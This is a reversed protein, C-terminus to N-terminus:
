APLAETARIATGSPEALGQFWPYRHAPACVDGVILLAPSRVGAAAATIVLQGLTGDVVRQRSRTGQEILAFPTDASRGGALLRLQIEGLQALAMYFVLTEGGRALATWDLRDISGQCHATVLRVAQALDRHTLPIGAYAACGQAATIGPVVEFPIGAQQLVALEEGGRAFILPDGGKLRVVHRGAQAQALLIQHIELQSVSHGGGTKGVEIREADRRALDLVEASVLRDHVIVDARQLHRLATLTLLGPDGPGAGVLVVRGRTAPAEALSRALWSEAAALQGCRLLDVLPGDLAAEYWDRRAAVDERAARIRGRWRALLLALGGLVPELLSEIRARLRRALVPAVGGTSIGVTIPGRSVIAPVIANGLDPADVVNVWLGLDRAAQAVAANVAREDTAAIVLRQGQLHAAQFAAVRVEHGASQLAKAQVPDLHPDVIRVRAGARVLLELKRRGVAGAGVLLVPVEQLDLFLPFHALAATDMPTADPDCTLNSGAHLGLARTPCSWERNSIGM